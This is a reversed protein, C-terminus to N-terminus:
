ENEYELMFDVVRAAGEGDVLLSAKKSMEDLIAPSGQIDNIFMGIDVKLHELRSLRAAGTSDRICM